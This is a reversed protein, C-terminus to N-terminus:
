NSVRKRWRLVGIGACALGALGFTGPEPVDSTGFALSYGRPGQNSQGVFTVVRLDQTTQFYLTGIDGSSASTFDYWNNATFAFNPFSNTLGGAAGNADFQAVLQLWPTSLIGSSGFGTLQELSEFTDLDFVTFVSGAPLVGGQLGSFNFAGQVINPGVGGADGVTFQDAGTPNLGNAPYESFTGSAYYPYSRLRMQATGSLANLQFTANGTYGALSLSQVGGVSMNLDYSPPPNDITLWGARATASFVIVATFVAARRLNIRM